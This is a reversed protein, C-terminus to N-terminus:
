QINMLWISYEKFNSLKGKRELLPVIEQLTITNGVSLATYEIGIQVLEPYQGPDVIEQAELEIIIMIEPFHGRGLSTRVEIM